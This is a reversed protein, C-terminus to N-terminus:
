HLTRRSMALLATLALHLVVAPWLLVGTVGGAVGLYALYLMMSANYILMGLLPRGWCAVGLAVLAVGFVRALIVSVGALRQDLLLRGVLSPVILAAAGTAVEVAAALRLVNKMAWGGVSRKAATELLGLQPRPPRACTLTVM